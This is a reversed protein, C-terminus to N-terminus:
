VGFQMQLQGVDFEVPSNGSQATIPSDLKNFYEPTGGSSATFIGYARIEGWNGTPNPYTIKAGNSKLTVGSGTSSAPWNTVNNTVAVRAYSGGIPEVFNTGDDSPDSTSLGM